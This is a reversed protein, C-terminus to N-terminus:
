LERIGKRIKETFRQRRLNGVRKGQDMSFSDAVYETHKRHRERDCEEAHVALWNHWKECEARCGIYRRPCDTGDPTKCPPKTNM